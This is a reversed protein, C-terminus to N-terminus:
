TKNSYEKILVNLIKHNLSYDVSLDIVHIGKSDLAKQLTIKFDEVSTPQHGWAGFSEAYKVFDPNDYNLGYKPFGEGEQKWQIMGYAHDNLIIVVLDLRLRVATELEQSNMMFGGDGNISIVKKSPYLEKVMMASALGAGMTALANDLLLSNQCYAPWNRAFWIKYIGNDLTVVGDDPLIDRTIKVVRQPLIPFRDDLEYRSLHQFVNEKVKLFFDLNWHTSHGKLNRALQHISHAIDGILNLQPFYVEDVEAPFFNVHIVKPDENKRMFFPPKEITDHGVNIILDAHEIAEHLFDDDSLAATGLYLPHREDIVGKGLQTNFFPIGVENVFETLALSSRSRNAGAGILLLPKSSKGIMETAREISRPSANPIRYEVVDFIKNGRVEETAIDEPLEIHVAGPREQKAQRFAERVVSAIHAGHTVQKSFKTLPRMM